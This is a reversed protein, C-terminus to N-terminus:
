VNFFAHSDYLIFVANCTKECKFQNWSDNRYKWLSKLFEDQFYKNENKGFETQERGKM